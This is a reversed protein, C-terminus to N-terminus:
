SQTYKKPVLDRQYGLSRLPLYGGVITSLRRPVSKRKQPTKWNVCTWGRGEGWLCHEVRSDLIKQSNRTQNSPPLVALFNRFLICQKLLFGLISLFVNTNCYQGLSKQGPNHNQFWLHHTSMECHMPM